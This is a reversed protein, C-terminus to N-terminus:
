KYGEAYISAEAERRVTLGRFVKGGAHDYLRIADPVKDNKGSNVDKLVSSKKLTGSGLNYTFDVLADYQNGLMKVMTYQRVSEEYIELDKRLLEDAAKPLMPTVFHEGALVRHGNGITEYGAVDRYIVPRYGEFHKVTAVGRDSVHCQQKFCPVADPTSLFLASLLLSAIM